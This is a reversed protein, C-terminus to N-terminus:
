YHDLPTRLFLEETYMCTCINHVHVYLIYMYMCTNHTCQITSSSM